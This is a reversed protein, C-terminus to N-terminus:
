YVVGVIIKKILEDLFTIEQNILSVGVEDGARIHNMQQEKDLAGLSEIVSEREIAYRKLVLERKEDENLEKPSFREGKKIDHFYLFRQGVPDFSLPKLRESEVLRVPKM